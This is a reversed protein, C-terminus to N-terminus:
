VTLLAQYRRSYVDKADENYGSLLSWIKAVQERNPFNRFMEIESITGLLVVLTRCFLRAKYTHFLRAELKRQLGESLRDKCLFTGAALLGSPRLHAEASIDDYLSEHIFELFPHSKTNQKLIRYLTPWYAIRSPDAKLEDPVRKGWTRKLEEMQELHEQWDPHRVKLKEIHEKIEIWASWHFEDMRPAFDDLIYILSCWLDIM